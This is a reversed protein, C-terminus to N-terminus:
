GTAQGSSQQTLQGEDAETVSASDPTHGGGSEKAAAVLAEAQREALEVVGLNAQTHAVAADILLAVLPERGYRARLDGLASLESLYANRQVTLVRRLREQGLRSAALLKLFFDDRYGGVRVFGTDLWRYLEDRGEKTLRYITKDPRRRQAVVRGTVLGDRVLRELVQYLHGINLEGWQPGIGQEFSAKLEYGYSPGRELFALVAHHIPM